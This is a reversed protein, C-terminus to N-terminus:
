QFNVVIKDGTADISHVGTGALLEPPVINNVAPQHEPQLRLPPDSGGGSPSLFASKGVKRLHPNQVPCWARYQVRLQRRFAARCCRPYLVPVLPLAM